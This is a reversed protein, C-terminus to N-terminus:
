LLIKIILQINEMSPSFPNKLESKEFYYYLKSITVWNAYNTKKM